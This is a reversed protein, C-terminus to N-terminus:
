VIKVLDTYKIEENTNLVGISWEVYTHSSNRNPHEQRVKQYKQILHEFMLMADSRNEFPFGNESITTFPIVSFVDAFYYRTKQWDVYLSIIYQTIPM